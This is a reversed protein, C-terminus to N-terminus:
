GRAFVRERAEPWPVLQTRGAQVDDLRRKAEEIWARETHPEDGVSELLRLAERVVESANTYRGTALKARLFEDFHRGLSFSTTKGSM